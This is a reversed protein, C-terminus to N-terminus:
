TLTVTLRAHTADVGVASSTGTAGAYTGTGSVVPLVIPDTYPVTGRASIQGDPLVLTADIRVMHGALADVTYHDTGVKAGNRLLTSTLVVKDGDSLGGTPQGARPTGGKPTYTTTATQEIVEITRPVRAAASRAPPGSPGAPASAATSSGCGSLLAMAAVPVLLLSKRM